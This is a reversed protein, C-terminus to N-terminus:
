LGGTGLSRRLQWRAFLNNSVLAVLIFAGGLYEAPASPKGQLAAIVFVVVPIFNGILSANLPGLCRVGVNWLLGALVTCLVIIFALEWGVSALQAASPAHARGSWTAIATVVFIALSGVSGTLATYRLPSWDLFRAAGLTYIVWCLAASFLLLDGGFEASRVLASLDGKTAVLVSGLFAVAICILTMRAPRVRHIAWFVLAVILPQLALIVATQVPSTAHLGEFMMLGFGAFGVIGYFLLWGRRPDRGLEALVLGGERLMLIALLIASGTGYRIATMYYPDITALVVKGVPFQAAWFLVTVIMALVGRQLQSM